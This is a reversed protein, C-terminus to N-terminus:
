LHRPNLTETQVVSVHGCALCLDYTLREAAGYGGHYFLAPQVHPALRMLLGHSCRPCNRTGEYPVVALSGTWTNRRVAEDFGPLQVLPSM